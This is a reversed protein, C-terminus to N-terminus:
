NDAWPYLLLNDVIDNLLNAVNAHHQPNVYPIILILGRLNAKPIPRHIFSSTLTDSSDVHLDLMPFTSRRKYMMYAIVNLRNLVQVLKYSVEFLSVRSIRYVTKCKLEQVGEM